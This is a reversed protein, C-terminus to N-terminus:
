IVALREEDTKCKDFEAGLVSGLAGIVAAASGTIIAATVVSGGMAISQATAFAGGATVWGAAQAGAFAGGAVPGVAALGIGSLALPLAVFGVTVGISTGIIKGKHKQWFRSFGNTIQEVM